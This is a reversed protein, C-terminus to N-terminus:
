APLDGPRDVDRIIGPDDIAIRLVSQPNAALMERAGRDGELAQLGPFFAKSFGVPHGAQERWYPQCIGGDALETAVKCFTAPEVEPMDGLAILVGDWAPIQSVGWALSAGMGHEAVPCILPTVAPNKLREALADDGPHLCLVIPLGTAQANGLAADLLTQGDALRALRKDSGFRRSYGAALM